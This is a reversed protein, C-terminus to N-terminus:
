LTLDHDNRISRRVDGGKYSPSMMPQDLPLPTPTGELPCGGIAAFVGRLEM